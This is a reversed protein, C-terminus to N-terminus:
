NEKLFLLLPTGDFYAPTLLRRYDTSAQGLNTVAQNNCSGDYTRYKSTTCVPAVLCTTNVLSVDRMSASNTMEGDTLGVSPFSSVFIM